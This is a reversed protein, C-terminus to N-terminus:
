QAKNLASQISQIFAQSSATAGSVIDVNASQAQIVESKLIPMASQNIRVSHSRDSPYQLFEVDAILGNQITARVQMNGYIADAVDGDYTGDKYKGTQMPPTTPNIPQDTIKPSPPTTVTINQEPPFTPAPSITISNPIVMVPQETIASQNVFRYYVSFLIFSVIVSGSLLFRKM